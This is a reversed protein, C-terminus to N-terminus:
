FKWKFTISFNNNIYNFKKIDFTTSTYQNYTAERVQYSYSFIYELRKSYVHLDLGTNLKVADATNYSDFGNRSMYNSLNGVSYKGELWISKFVKVGIKQSFVNRDNGDDQIFAYSTSGFFKQNGFPYYTLSFEQQFQNVAYLNSFTLSVSPNFYKMRKGFSVSGLVNNYTNSLDSFVISGKKSPVSPQTSQAPQALLTNSNTHFFGFGGSIQYGKQSQYSVGLNYQLQINNYSKIKKIVPNTFQEIGLSKTQFVSLKNYVNFRNKRAHEVLINMGYVSGNLVTEGRQYNPSVYNITQNENINNNTFSNLGFAISDIKKKKFGVKQQFYVPLKSALSNANEIRGTLVYAYYLYEQVLTDAPNMGFAKEFHTLAYEYKNKGYSVIGLRMQLYYFDVKEKKAIRGTKKLKKFDNNMFDVYSASDIQTYSMTEQANLSISFLICFGILYYM